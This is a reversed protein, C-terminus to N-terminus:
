PEPLEGLEVDDPLDILRPLGVVAHPVFLYAACHRRELLVVRDLPLSLTRGHHARGNLVVTSTGIDEDAAAPDDFLGRRLASRGRLEEISVEARDTLVALVSGSWEFDLRLREIQPVEGERHSSGYEYGVLRADDLGIVRDRFAVHYPLLDLRRKRAPLDTEASEKM